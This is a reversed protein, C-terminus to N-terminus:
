KSSKLLKEWVRRDYVRLPTAGGEAIKRPKLLGNHIIRWHTALPLYLAFLNRIGASYRRRITAEPINHGGREVRDAVRAVAANATPLWLFVLHFEYGENIAQRVFPAFSRTALTTEFGFDERARVLEHIRALMIRGARIAVAEPTDPSLEAAITDANVFIPVSYVGRLLQQSATTKGAGNPGALMVLKPSRGVPVGM